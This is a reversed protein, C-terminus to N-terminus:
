QAGGEWSLGYCTELCVIIFVKCFCVFCFSLQTFKAEQTVNLVRFSKLRVPATSRSGAWVVETPEREMNEGHAEGLLLRQIRRAIVVSPQNVKITCHKVDGGVCYLNYPLRNKVPWFVWGVTDFYYCLKDGWGVCDLDNQLRDECGLVQGISVFLVSCSFLCVLYLEASAFLAFCLLVFSGQNLRRKRCEALIRPPSIRCRESGVHPM